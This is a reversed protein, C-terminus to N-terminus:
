SLRRALEELYEPFYRGIVDLSFESMISTAPERELLFEFSTRVLLESQHEELGLQDLVADPVSVLHTTTRGEGHVEVRWSGPGNPTVQLREREGM